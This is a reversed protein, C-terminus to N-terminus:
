REQLRLSAWKFPWVLGVKTTGIVFSGTGCRLPVAEMQDARDPPLPWNDDSFDPVVFVEAGPARRDGNV